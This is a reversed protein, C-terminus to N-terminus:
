LGTQTKQFVQFTSTSMLFPRSLHLTHTPVLHCLGLFDYLNVGFVFPWLVYHMKKRTTQGNSKQSILAKSNSNRSMVVASDIFDEAKRDYTYDMRILLRPKWEFLKEDCCASM